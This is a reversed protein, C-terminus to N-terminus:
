PVYKARRTAAPLLSCHTRAMHYRLSGRRTFQCGCHGCVFRKEGSHCRVHRRLNSLYFFTQPCLHCEYSKGGGHSRLHDRLSGRQAFDRPCLHCTFRRRPHEEPVAEVEGKVQYVDQPSTNPRKEKRSKAALHRLLSGQEKVSKGGKAANIASATTSFTPEEGQCLVRQSHNEGAVGETSVLCTPGAETNTCEPVHDRQSNQTFTSPNMARAEHHTDPCHSKQHVLSETTHIWCHGNLSNQHPFTRSCLTCPFPKAASHTAVHSGFTSKHSFEEGCHPCLFLKQPQKRKRSSVPQVPPRTDPSTAPEEKVHTGHVHKGLNSSNSSACPHVNSEALVNGGRKGAPHHIIHDEPSKRINSNRASVAVGGFVGQYYGSRYPKMPVGDDEICERNSTKKGECSTEQHDNPLIATLHLADNEIIHYPLTDSLHKRQLAIERCNPVTCSGSSKVSCACVDTSRTAPGSACRISPKSELVAEDCDQRGPSRKDEPRDVIVRELLLPQSNPFEATAYKRCAVERLAHQHQHNEDAVSPPVNAGHINVNHRQLWAASSFSCKCLPCHFWTKACHGSMHQRVDLISPFSEPCINCMHLESEKHGRLHAM